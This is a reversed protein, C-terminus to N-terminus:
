TWTQSWNRFVEYAFETLCWARMPCRGPAWLPALGLSVRNGMAQLGWRGAGGQCRYTIESKDWKPKRPFFNYNAVDPNGCRPKRMTMITRKDLVGTEPLGFFKQMKKLTDKLMFLNCKEKPCGYYTNLYQQFFHAGSTLLWTLLPCDQGFCAATVLELGAGYGLCSM